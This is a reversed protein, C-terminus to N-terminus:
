SSTPMWTASNPLFFRQLFFSCSVWDRADLTEIMPPYVGALVALMQTMKQEDVIVDGQANIRVPVGCRSIDGATPARLTLEHIVENKTNRTPKYLLKLTVPWQVDPPAEDLDLPPPAEAKARAPKGEEKKPPEHEILPPESKAFVVKPKVKTRDIGDLGEDNSSISPDQFGERIPPANM